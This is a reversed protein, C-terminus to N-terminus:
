GKSSGPLVQHNDPAVVKIYHEFFHFIVEKATKPLKSQVPQRRAIGANFTIWSAAMTHMHGIFGNLLHRKVSIHGLYVALSHGVTLLSKSGFDPGLRYLWLWHSLVLIYAGYVYLRRGQM